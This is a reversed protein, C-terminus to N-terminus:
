VSSSCCLLALVGLGRVQLVLGWNNLAQPNAPAIQLSAAYKQSALHLCAAAEGPASPKLARALDSLAVGWNYLAQHSAPKIALAAEYRACAQRLFAVQDASAAPLRGSLEQLM